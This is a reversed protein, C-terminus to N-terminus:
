SWILRVGALDDDVAMVFTSFGSGVGLSTPDTLHLPIGADYSAGKLTILTENASPPIITLGTVTVGDVAPPSVVNNGSSLTTIITQGPSDINDLSSNIVNQDVDGSFEIQVVRSSTVSM